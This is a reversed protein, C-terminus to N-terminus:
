KHKAEHPAYPSKQFQLAPLLKFGKESVMLALQGQWFYRFACIVGHILKINGIITLLTVGVQFSIVTKFIPFIYVEM